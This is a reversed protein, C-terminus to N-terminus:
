FVGKSQTTHSPPAVFASPQMRANRSHGYRNWVGSHKQAEVAHRLEEEQKRKEKKEDHRALLHGPLDGTLISAIAPDIGLAQAGQRILPLPSIFIGPNICM